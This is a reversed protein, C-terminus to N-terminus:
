KCILPIIRVYMYAYISM